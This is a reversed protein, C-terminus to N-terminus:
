CNLVALIHISMRISSCVIFVFEAPVILVGISYLVRICKRMRSQKVILVHPVRRKQTAGMWVNKGLRLHLFVCIYKCVYVDSCVTAFLPFMYRPRSVRANPAVGVSVKGRTRCLQATMAM